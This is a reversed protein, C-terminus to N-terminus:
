SWLASIPVAHINQEFPVVERGTYLVIGRIFRNGATERFSKIGEIDKSTLSASAKVEIAVCRRGSDELIIDVEKGSVTRFFCIRPQRNSWSSLKIIENVAFTELLQGGLTRDIALRKANVGLLHSLLGTDSLHIKNAKTLRSSENSSWPAVRHVLFISELLTFYRKLSTQPIQVSRSIDAFNLLNATRAAILHMLDPLISLGDIHAIERVDRQILTTLYNRFWADKRAPQQRNMIEPYGGGTVMEWLDAEGTPRASPVTQEESFLSDVFQGKEGQLESQSLPWLTLIEIRGALSDAVKPILLINASGTLLFRGPTRNSDVMSKIALLLEPARQIEDLIVRAPLGAIFGHPNSKAANLVTYDDFTIYHAQYENNILNQVLTSKGTQRAGALFVVPTDSLAAFLQSSLNRKIM